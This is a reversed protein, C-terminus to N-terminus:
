VLMTLKYLFVAFKYLAYVSFSIGVLLLFIVLINFWRPFIRQPQIGILDARGDQSRINLLGPVTAHSLFEISFFEKPGLTGIRIVHQGDPTTEETFPLAPNLQFFDPRRRHVIELQEATKRGLNQITIGHTMVTVAPNRLQYTFLHATWYVIKVRPQLYQLLVGVTLGVIISGVIEFVNEM